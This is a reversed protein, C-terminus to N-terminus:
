IYIHGLMMVDYTDQKWELLILLEHPMTNCIDFLSFQIMTVLITCEYCFRETIYAIVLFVKLVTM